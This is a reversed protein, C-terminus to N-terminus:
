LWLIVIKGLHLLTPHHDAKNCVHNFSAARVWKKETVHCSHRKSFLSALDFGDLGQFIAEKDKGKRFIRIKKEQSFSIVFNVDSKSYLITPESFPVEHQKWVTCNVVAQKLMVWFIKNENM